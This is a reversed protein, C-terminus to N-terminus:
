EAKGAVSSGLRKVARKMQAVRGLQMVLTALREPDFPKLLVYHREKDRPQEYGDSGTILLCSIYEPMERVKGFLESGSMGPLVLDSIVVHFATTKLMELAREASDCTLLAVDNSLLSQITLLMAPEDDVVLVGYKEPNESIASAARFSGSSSGPFDGAPSIGAARFSGSPTSRNKPGDPPAGPTKSTGPPKSPRKFRGSSM